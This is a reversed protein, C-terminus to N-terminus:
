VSEGGFQSLNGEVDFTPIGYNRGIERQLSLTADSLGVRGTKIRGDDLNITFDLPQKTYENEFIGSGLNITGSLGREKLYQAYTLRGKNLGSIEGFGGSEPIDKVQGQLQNTNVIQEESTNTFADNITDAANGGINGIGALINNGFSGLGSGIFSGIKGANKIALYALLGGGAVVALKLGTGAGVM